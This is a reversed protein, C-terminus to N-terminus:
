NNNENRLDTVRKAKGQFRKLSNPQVLTVKVDISLITRIDAKIKNQLNELKSYHELLKPDAVEVM